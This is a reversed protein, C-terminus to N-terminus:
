VKDSTAIVLFIVLRKVIKDLNKWVLIHLKHLSILHLMWSMAVGTAPKALLENNNSTRSFLFVLRLEFTLHVVTIDIQPEFNGVEISASVVVAGAGHIVSIHEDEASDCVLGSLVDVGDLFKIVLVSAFPRDDVDLLFFKWISM